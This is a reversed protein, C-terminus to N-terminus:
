HYQASRLLRSRTRGVYTGSPRTSRATHNRPGNDKALTRVTFALSERRIIREHGTKRPLRTQGECSGSHPALAASVCRCFIDPPRRGLDVPTTTM